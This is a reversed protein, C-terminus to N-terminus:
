LVNDILTEVYTRLSQAETLPLGTFRSMEATSCSLSVLSTFLLTTKIKLQAEGLDQKLSSVLSYLTDYVKQDAQNVGESSLVNRVRTKAFERQSVCSTHLFDLYRVLDALTPHNFDINTALWVDLGEAVLKDLAASFLIDKSSFYYHISAINVSAAQAIERVTVEEMPKESLMRMTTALIRDKAASSKM